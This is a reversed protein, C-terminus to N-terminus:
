FRFRNEEKVSIETVMYSDDGNFCLKKLSFFLHVKHHSLMHATILAKKSRCIGCYDCFYRRIDRFIPERGERGEGM